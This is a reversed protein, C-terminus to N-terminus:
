TAETEHVPGVESNVPFGQELGKLLKETRRQAWQKPSQAQFRLTALEIGSWPGNSADQYLIDFDLYFLFSFTM